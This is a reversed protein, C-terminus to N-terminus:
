LGSQGGDHARSPWLSLTSLAACAGQIDAYVAAACPTLANPRVAEIIRALRRDNTVFLDAEVLYTALASAM